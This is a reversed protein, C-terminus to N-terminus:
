GHDSLGARKTIMDVHGRKDLAERVLKFRAACAETTAFRLYDAVREIDTGARLLEIGTWDKLDKPRLATGAATLAKGMHHALAQAEFAGGAPTELLWTRGRAQRHQAMWAERAEILAAVERPVWAEPKGTAADALYRGGDATAEAALGGLGVLEAPRRGAAFGVLAAILGCARFHESRRLPGRLLTVLAQALAALLADRRAADQFTALEATTAAPITPDIRASAKRRRALRDLAEADGRDLAITELIGYYHLRAQSPEAMPSVTAAAAAEARRRARVGLRGGARPARADPPAPVAREIRSTAPARYGIAAIASPALLDDLTAIPPDQDALLGVMRVIGAKLGGVAGSAARRSVFADIEALLAPGCLTRAAAERRDAENPLRTLRAGRTRANYGEIFSNVEAAPEARGEAVLAARLRAIDADGLSDPKLKLRILDGALRQVAAKGTATGPRQAFRKWRLRRETVSM